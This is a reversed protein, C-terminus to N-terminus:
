KAKSKAFRYHVGTEPVIIQLADRQQRAQERLHAPDATNFDFMGFHHVMLTPIGVARCLACAEDFDMNGPVGHARRTQDRGNVPLLALDIHQDKLWGELEPFPVTDGSHYITAMPTHFIYGLFKCRGAEDHELQEHAAPIATVSLTEHLKLTRGADIPLLRDDPIGREIALDIWAAPVVFACGPNHYAIPRLTEPDMHDTHAHTCFYFDLLRFGSADVPPPMMREHPYHKGAYKKALSDSLYPDILWRVEGQRLAFGAQGLWWCDIATRGLSAAEFTSLLPEGARTELDIM